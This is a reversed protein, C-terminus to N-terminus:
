SEKGVGGKDINNMRPCYYDKPSLPSNIKIGVAKSLKIRFSFIFVKKRLMKQGLSYGFLVLVVLELTVNANPGSAFNCKEFNLCNCYHFNRERDSWRKQM